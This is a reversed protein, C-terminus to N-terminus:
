LMSIVCKVNVVYSKAPRAPYLDHMHNFKVCDRAVCLQTFLISHPLDQSIPDRLLRRNMCGYQSYLHMVYTLHSRTLLVDCKWHWTTWHSPIHQQYVLLPFNMPNYAAM